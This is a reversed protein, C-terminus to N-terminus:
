PVNRFMWLFNKWLLARMHNLNVCSLRDCTSIKPDDEPPLDLPMPESAEDPVLSVRRGAGRGSMSINDGFEGSIEGGEDDM